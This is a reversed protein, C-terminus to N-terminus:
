LLVGLSNNIRWRNTFFGTTKRVYESSESRMKQVNWRCLLGKVFYTTSEKTFKRMMPERWSSQGGPHEHLWYRDAFHQRMYCQVMVHLGERLSMLKKMHQDSSASRRELYQTVLFPDRSPIGFLLWPENEDIFEELLIQNIPQLSNWGGIKFRSLAVVVKPDIKANMVFNKVFKGDMVGNQVLDENMVNDQVLEEDMVIKQNIKEDMVVKQDSKWIKGEFANLCTLNEVLQNLESRKLDGADEGRCWELVEGIYRSKRGDMESFADLASIQADDDVHGSKQVLVSEPRSQIEGSAPYELTVTPDSSASASSAEQEFRVTKRLKDLQEEGAAESGRKVIHIDRM